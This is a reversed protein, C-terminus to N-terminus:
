QDSQGDTRELYLEDETLFMEVFAEPLAFGDPDDIVVQGLQSAHAALAARKASGWPGLPLRHVAFLGGQTLDTGPLRSWVPYFFLRTSPSNAVTAEAIAAAAVHDCHPDAASASILTTANTQGTIAALRDALEFMANGSQPAKSDPIELFTLDQESGGLTRVAKIAEIRRLAALKEPPWDASGTHSKDGNTLIFIHVPQEAAFCAALLAGCGLTEDDPHPALVVIGGEGFVSRLADLHFEHELTSLM